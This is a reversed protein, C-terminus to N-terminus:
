ARPPDSIAPDAELAARSRQAEAALEEVAEQMVAIANVAHADFQDLTSFVTDWAQKLGDLDVRIAAARAAVSGASPPGAPPGRRSDRGDRVSALQALIRRQDAMAHAVAVSTRLAAATTTTAMRITRVVQHNNDQVVRLAAAGQTAVALQVLLDRRRQRITFLADTRLARARDPDASDLSAIRRELAEDIVRAMEAYQRLSEIEHALARQDQSIAAIEAHLESRGVALAALIEQIRARARAYAGLAEDLPDGLPILGLLRRPRGDVRALRAPDLEDVAERLEALGRAIPSAGDLTGIIARMPRDVLRHSLEATAVIEREGIDGVEAVLRRYAPGHLDAAVIREVFGTAMREIRTQTAPDTPQSPLPGRGSPELAPDAAAAAAEVDEPNNSM